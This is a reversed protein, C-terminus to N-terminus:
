NGTFCETNVNRSAFHSPFRTMSLGLLRTSEGFWMDDSVNSEELLDEKLAFKPAEKKRTQVLM